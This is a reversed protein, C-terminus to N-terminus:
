RPRARRASSMSSSEGTRSSTAPKWRPVPRAVPHFPWRATRRVVALGSAHAGCPQVRRGDPRSTVDARVFLAAGLSLGLEPEFEPSRLVHRCLLQWAPPPADARRIVAIVDDNAENPEIPTFLGDRYAYWRLDVGDYATGQARRAGGASRASAAAFVTAGAGHVGVVHTGFSLPAQRRGGGRATRPGILGQNRTVDFSLPKYSSYCPYM